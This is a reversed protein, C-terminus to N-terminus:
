QNVSPNKHKNCFYKIEKVMGISEIALCSLNMYILASISYIGIKGHEYEGDSNM